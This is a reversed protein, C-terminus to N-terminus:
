VPWTNESVSCISFVRVQVPWWYVRSSPGQTGTTLVPSPPYLTVPFIDHNVDTIASALWNPFIHGSTVSILLFGNKKLLREGRGRGEVLNVLKEVCLLHNKIKAHYHAGTLNINRYEAVVELCQFFVNAVQFSAVWRDWIQLLLIKCCQLGVSPSPLHPDSAGRCRAGSWRSWTWRWGWCRRRCGGGSWWSATPTEAQTDDGGVGVPSLLLGSALSEPRM